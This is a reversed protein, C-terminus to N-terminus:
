KMYKLIKDVSVGKHWFLADAGVLSPQLDGHSQLSNFEPGRESRPSDLNNDSELDCRTSKIYTSILACIQPPLTVKFVLLFKIKVSM